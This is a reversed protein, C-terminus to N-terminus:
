GDAETEGEAASEIADLIPCEGTPKRARCAVLLRELNRKIQRLEEIKQDVLRVKKETAVRVRECSSSSAREIRLALLGRIEELSFGLDQARRIFRLRAVAEPAFQRYGSGTRAPSALLGRREYYRVTQINVGTRNALQGITLM